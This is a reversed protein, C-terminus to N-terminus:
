PTVKEMQFDGNKMIKKSVSILLDLIDKPCEDEHNAITHAVSVLLHASTIMVFRSPTIDFDDLNNSAKIIINMADSVAKNGIKTLEDSNDNQKKEEKLKNIMEETDKLLKEITEIKM